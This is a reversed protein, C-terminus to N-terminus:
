MLIFQTICAQNECGFTTVPVCDGRLCRIGVYVSPRNLGPGVSYLVNMLTHYVMYQNSSRVIDYIFVNISLKCLDFCTTRDSILQNLSASIAYSSVKVCM